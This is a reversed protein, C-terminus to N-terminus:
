VGLASMAGGIRCYALCVGGMFGVGIGSGRGKGGTDCVDLDECWRLIGM